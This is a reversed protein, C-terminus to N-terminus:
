IRQNAVVVLTSGSPNVPVSRSYGTGALENAAIPAGKFFRPQGAWPVGTPLPLNETVTCSTTGAPLTPSNWIGPSPYTISANYTASGCVITFSFTGSWTSNVPQNTGLGWVVKEISLSQSGGSQTTAAGPNNVVVLKTVGNPALTISRVMGTGTMSAGATQLTFTPANWATVSSTISTEAVTCTTVGAPLQPSTWENNSPVTLTVTTSYSGCTVAFVFTGTVAPGSVDKTIKIFTGAQACPVTLVANVQSVDLGGVGAVNSSDNTFTGCANVIVRIVLTCQGGAPVSANTLTVTTGTTVTGGCTNSIVNAATMQQAPPTGGTPIPLTDTFGLGSTTTSGTPNTITFTVTTPIGGPTFASFAKTLTPSGGTASGGCDTVTLTSQLGSTGLRNAGRVDTALNSYTGCTQSTATFTITCSATGATMGLGTAVLAGSIITPAPGTCTTSPTGYVLGSPLVDTFAMGTVAPKYSLNTITFTLTSSVGVGVSSPTFEKTASPWATYAQGQGITPHHFYYGPLAPKPKATNVFPTNATTPSTTTLTILCSGGAGLSGTPILINTGGGTIVACSSGASVFSTGPPLVDVLNFGGIAANPTPGNNTVTIKWAVNGGPLVIPPNPAKTITINRCRPLLKTVEQHSFSPLTATAQNPDFAPDIVGLAQNVFFAPTGSMCRPDSPAPQSVVVKIKCVIEGGPAFTANSGLVAKAGNAEPTGPQVVLTSTLSRTWTVGSTSCNNPPAFVTSVPVAAYLASSISMSDWVTGLRLPPGTNKWKVFYWTPVGFTIPGTPPVQVKTVKWSCKPLDPMLVSEGNIITFGTPTPEVTLGRVTFENIIKVTNIQCTASYSADYTLTWTQGPALTLAPKTPIKRELITLKASGVFPHDTVVHNCAPIVCTDNVTKVGFTTAAPAPTWVRDDYQVQIPVAFSNTVSVTYSVPGAWGNNATVVKTVNVPAPTCNPIAITVPATQANNTANADAFNAGLGGASLYAKNNIVVNQCGYAQFTVEVYISLTDGPAIVAGTAGSLGNTGFLDATTGAALNVIGSAPTPAGFCQSNSSSAVCGNYSWTADVFISTSSNSLRDFLKVVPNAGATLAAVTNSTNTVDITYKVTGGNSVITQDAVKTVKLDYVPSPAVVSIDVSNTAPALGPATVKATNTYDGVGLFSGTIYVIVSGPNGAPTIPGISTGPTGSAPCGLVSTVATGDAFASCGTANFGTPLTDYITTPTGTPAIVVIAFTYTAGSVATNVNTFTTTINPNAPPTSLIYKNLTMAATQAVALPRPLLMMLIASALLVVVATLRQRPRSQATATHPLSTASNM